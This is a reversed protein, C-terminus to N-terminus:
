VMGSRAYCPIAAGPGDGFLGGHRSKQAPFLGGPPARGRRHCRGEHVPCPHRGGPRLVDRPDGGAHDDAGGGAPGHHCAGGRYAPPGPRLNAIAVRQKQGGSLKSPYVEAKDLLGVKELLRRCKEEGDGAGPTTMRYPEILNQKVTMHPFLNFNQFVMGMRGALARRRAAPPYSGRTIFPEGDITVTGGDVTELDILCRLLTSKGSGSSGIIAIVDGQEVDFSVERLVPLEGFSKRLQKVELFPM